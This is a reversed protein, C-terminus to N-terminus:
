RVGIVIIKRSEIPTEQTCIPCRVLQGYIQDLPKRTSNGENEMVYLKQTCNRNKCEVAYYFKGREGHLPNMIKEEPMNQKVYKRLAPASDV